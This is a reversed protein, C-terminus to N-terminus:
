WGLAENYFEVEPGSEGLVRVVAARCADAMRPPGCTVGALSRACRRRAKRVTAEIDPRGHQVARLATLGMTEIDASAKRTKRTEYVVLDFKPDHMAEKLEHECIKDVISSHQVAWVVHMATSRTPLLFKAHSIPATIGSGGAIILVDSFSRFDLACGYPGELFVTLSTSPSQMPKKQLRSTLGRYPRILLSQTITDDISSSSSSTSPPQTKIEKDDEHTSIAQITASTTQRWSCLTFPHSQYSQINGPVHLYYYYGPTINNKPLLDTVDLRIIEVADDYTATANIGKLLQPILGLYATRVLRMFREFAWIAVCCWLFGNLEGEFVKLYSHYTPPWISYSANFM